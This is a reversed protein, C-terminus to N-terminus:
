APQILFLDPKKFFDAKSVRTTNSLNEPELDVIEQWGYNNSKISIKARQMLFLTFYLYKCKESYIVGQRISIDFYYNITLFQM